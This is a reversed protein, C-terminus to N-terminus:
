EDIMIMLSQKLKEKKEELKLKKQSKYYDRYYKRIHARNKSCYERQYKNLKERNAKAYEKFYDPNKLLWENYYNM